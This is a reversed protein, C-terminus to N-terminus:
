VEPYILSSYNIWGDAVKYDIVSQAPVLIQKLNKSDFLSCEMKPPSVSKLIITELSTCEDIAFTGLRKINQPLILSKLSKCYGFGELVELSEPLTVSELETCEYCFERPIEKINADITLRKIKSNTFVGKGLETVSHPVYVEKVGSFAFAREGIALLSEPFIVSQLSTTKFFAELGISQLQDCKSLDISLLSPCESFASKGIKTLEIPVDITDLLDCSAFSSDGWEKVSNPMFVTTLKDCGWFAKTGIKELQCGEEYSVSVIDTFSFASEGIEIVDKPIIVNIRTGTYEELVGNSIKFDSNESANNCASIFFTSVIIVVGIIITFIRKLM